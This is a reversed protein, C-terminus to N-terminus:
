GDCTPRGPCHDNFSTITPILSKTDDVVGKTNSIIPMLLINAQSTFFRADHTINWLSPQILFEPGTDIPDTYPLTHRAEAQAAVAGAVVDPFSSVFPALAEKLSSAFLHLVEPNTSVPTQAHDFQLSDTQVEMDIKTVHLAGYWQSRFYDFHETGM